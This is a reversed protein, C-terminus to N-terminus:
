EIEELRFNQSFPRFRAEQLTLDYYFMYITEDHRTYIVDKVCIYSTFYGGEFLKFERDVLKKHLEKAEHFMKCHYLEKEDPIFFIIHDDTPALNVIFDEDSYINKLVLHIVTRTISIDLVIANGFDDEEYPQPLQEQIEYMEKLVYASDVKPFHGIAILYTEGIKLESISIQQQM